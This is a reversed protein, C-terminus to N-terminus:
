KPTALLTFHKARGWAYEFQGSVCVLAGRQPDQLLIWGNPADYGTILVFHNDEGSINMAVVLPRGRDLHHYLGHIGSSLDGAFIATELGEDKLYAELDAGTLGQEAGAKARMSAAKTKDCPHGYYALVMSLASVGCDYQDDQLVVPVALVVAKDSLKAERLPKGTDFVACGALTLVLTLCFLHRAIMTEIAARVPRSTLLGRRASSAPSM